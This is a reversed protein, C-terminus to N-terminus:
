ARPPRAAGVEDLLTPGIHKNEVCLEEIPRRLHHPMSGTLAKWDDTARRVTAEFDPDYSMRIEIEYGAAGCGIEYSPSKPTLKIGQFREYRGYIEAIRRGAVTQPRNLDGVWNLRGLETVLRPDIGMLRGHVKIRQWLVGSLPEIPPKRRIKGCAFRQGM